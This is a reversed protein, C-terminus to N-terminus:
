LLVRGAQFRATASQSTATPKLRRKEDISSSMDVYWFLCLSRPSFGAAVTFRPGGPVSGNGNITATAMMLRDV